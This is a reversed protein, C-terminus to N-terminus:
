IKTTKVTTLRKESRGREGSVNLKILNMEFQALEEADLSPRLLLSNADEENMANLNGWDRTIIDRTSGRSSQGKRLRDMTVQLIMRSAKDFSHKKAVAAVKSLYLEGFEEFHWDETESGWVAKIEKISKAKRNRATTTRNRIDKINPNDLTSLADGETAYKVVRLRKSDVREM